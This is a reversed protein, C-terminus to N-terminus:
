VWWVTPWSSSRLDPWMFKALYLMNIDGKDDVVYTEFMPQASVVGNEAMQNYLPANFIATATPESSTVTIRLEDSPRLVYRQAALAM